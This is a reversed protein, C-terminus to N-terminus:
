ITSCLPWSAARSEEPVPLARIDDVAALVHDGARAMVRELDDVSEPPPDERIAREARDCAADAAERRRDLESDEAAATGGCGAVGALLCAVALRATM